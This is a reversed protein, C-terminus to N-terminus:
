NSIEDIQEKLEHHTKFSQNINTSYLTITSAIILLLLSILLRLILRSQKELHDVKDELGNTVITNLDNVAKTTDKLNSEVANFRPACFTEYTKLHEKPNEKSM